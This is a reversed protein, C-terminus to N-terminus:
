ANVEAGIAAGDATSIMVVPITVNAGQAGPGMGVPAGSHNIIIVGVAGADQANKAKVGFECAGRYLLAIKGTIDNILPNCALSDGITGDDVLMLTDTIANEPITLDPTGWNGAPPAWTFVKSGAVSAPTKCYVALQAQSYIYSLM